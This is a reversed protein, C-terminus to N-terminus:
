ESRGRNYNERKKRNIEEIARYKYEEIHRLNATELRIQEMKKEHWFNILKKGYDFAQDLVSMTENQEM